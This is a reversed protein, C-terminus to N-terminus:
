KVMEPLVLRAAGVLRLEAQSAPLSPARAAALRAPCLHELTYSGTQGRQQPSQLSDWGALEQTGDISQLHPFQLRLLPGSVIRLCDKTTHIFDCVPEPLYM